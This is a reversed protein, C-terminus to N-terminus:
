LQAGLSVGPAPAGGALMRGPAAGGIGAAAGWSTGDARYM